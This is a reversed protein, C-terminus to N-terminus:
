RTEELLDYGSAALLSQRSELVNMEALILDNASRVEIHIIAKDAVNRGM